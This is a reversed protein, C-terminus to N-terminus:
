SHCCGAETWEGFLNYGNLETIRFKREAPNTKLKSLIDENTIYNAMHIKSNEEFIENGSVNDQSKGRRQNGPKVDM